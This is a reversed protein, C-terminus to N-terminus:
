VVQGIQDFPHKKSDAAAPSRPSHMYPRTEEDSPTLFSPFIDFFNPCKTNELRKSYSGLDDGSVQNEPTKEFSCRMPTQIRGNM